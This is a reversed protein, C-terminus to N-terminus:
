WAAGGNEKQEIYKIDPMLEMIKGILESNKRGGSFIEIDREKGKNYEMDSYEPHYGVVSWSHMGGQPGVTAKICEVDSVPIIKRGTRRGYDYYEYTIYLHHDELKALNM